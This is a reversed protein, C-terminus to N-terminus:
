DRQVVCRGGLAHFLVPTAWERQVWVSQSPSQLAKRGETVAADVPYGDVIRQYFTQAFLIAARDSIPFQMAVVAPIGGRILADAVGAFATSGSQASTAATKCANLFVLRVSPEDNFLIRLKQGSVLCQSGDENELVLSGHGTHVDFAGHGMYHIVHPDRRALYTSLNEYTPREEAKDSGGLYDVSVGGIRAWEREIRAREDELNLEATGAPNALIVLIRLPKELPLPNWANAAAAASSSDLARVVLTKRSLALPDEGSPTLLEWPLSAVESMGAIRTAFSLRIRVGHDRVARMSEFLACVDRSAFLGQYLQVGLDQLQDRPAGFSVPANIGDTVEAGRVTEAVGNIVGKLDGLHFPLKLEGHVPLGAVRIRHRQLQRERRAHHRRAPRQLDARSASLLAAFL